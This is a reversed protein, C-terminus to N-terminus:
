DVWLREFGACDWSSCWRPIKNRMGWQPIKDRRTLQKKMQVLFLGPFWERDTQFTCFCLFIPLYQFLFSLNSGQTFWLLSTQVFGVGGCLSSTLFQHSDEDGTLFFGISWKWVWMKLPAVLLPFSDSLLFQALFCSSWRWCVMQAQFTLCSRGPPILWLLREELMCMLSRTGWNHGQTGSCM